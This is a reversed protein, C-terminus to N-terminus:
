SDRRDAQISLCEPLGTQTNCVPLCLRLSGVFTAPCAAFHQYKINYLDFNCKALLKIVLKNSFNLPTNYVTVM